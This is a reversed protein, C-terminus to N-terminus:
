AIRQEEEQTLLAAEGDDEFGALDDGARGLSSYRDLQLVITTLRADASILQDIYLPNALVTERLEALETSDGPWDELLNEVVLEDELGYTNRANVLSTIDEIQPLDEFEEHLARLRALFDLSFVEESEIAVLVTSDRGFQRNFADYTVRVPDDERLFGKDSLDFQLRPLQAVLASTLVLCLSIVACPRRVVFEGWRRFVAEIRDRRRARPPSPAPPAM